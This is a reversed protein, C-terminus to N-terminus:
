TQWFKGYTSTKGKTDQKLCNFHRCNVHLVLSFRKIFLDRYSCVQRIWIILNPIIIVIGICRKQLYIFLHWHNHYFWNNYSYFTITHIQWTYHFRASLFQGLFFVIMSLVFDVRFTVTLLFFMRIYTLLCM